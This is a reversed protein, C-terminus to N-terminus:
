CAVMRCPTNQVTYEAWHGQGIERCIRSFGCSMTYITSLNMCCENSTMGKSSCKERFGKKKLQSGTLRWIEVVRGTHSATDSKYHTGVTRELAMSPLSLSTTEHGLLGSDDHQHDRQQDFIGGVGGKNVSTLSANGHECYGM